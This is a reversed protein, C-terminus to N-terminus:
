RPAQKAYQEFAKRDFDNAFGIFQDTVVQSVPIVNRTEGADALIRIYAQMGTMSMAGIRRSAPDAAPLDDEWFTLEATKRQLDAPSFPRGDGTLLAQAAAAPNYRVLLSAKVIARSFRRLADEKEEIVSPAAAYGANAYEGLTPHRLIRLRTGATMFPILEYFPLAAAAVKGSSLAGVAQEEMGITVLEYDDPKLGAALLASKTSFVASTGTVSHVGIKKGKLEALTRVPGDAPVGIVYGFKSARTLFMKLHIGEDYRSVLPEIGVPCIDGRGASCIRLADLAGNSLVNSVKLHEDKYFGAGEAILNLANMLPPTKGDRVVSLADDAFAPGCALLLVACAGYTRRL